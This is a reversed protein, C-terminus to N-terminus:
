SLEGHFCRTAGQEIALLCYGCNICSSEVASEDQFRNVIDPEIIFPRGMSVFDAMNGGIIGEIDRLYRIGGVAIVPITVQQKIERAACVNYNILPEQRRRGIDAVSTSSAPGRGIM